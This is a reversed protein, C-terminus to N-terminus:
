ALAADEKGPILVYIRNPEGVGQRVRMILGATELENLSRKVTMSSRSLVAAIATVPFCVFLIGNEDEQGNSLMADLMRCYMVKATSSIQDFYDLLGVEDLYTMAKTEGSATAVATKFYHSKLYTLLEDAGPKKEVPHTEMYVAMLEKRRNRVAHYDFDQGFVEKMMPEAFEPAMSRLMLSHEMKWDYGAERGAEMWFHCYIKETDLLIGDMDFIVARIM